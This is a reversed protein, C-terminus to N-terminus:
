VEDADANSAGDTLDALGHAPVPEEASSRTEDEFREGSLDRGSISEHEARALPAAAPAQGTPRTEPREYM